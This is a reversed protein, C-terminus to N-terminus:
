GPFNLYAFEGFHRMAAADYTRAAAEEDRFSGLHFSRGDVKIEAMWRQDGKHWRVGKFRSSSGPKGATNARNNQPTAIRLNKRRNNLGYRDRHDVRTTPSALSLLRHMSIRKGDFITVAYGKTEGRQFVFVWSFHRVIPLDDLDVVAFKGQTLPVFAVSFLDSPWNPNDTKM